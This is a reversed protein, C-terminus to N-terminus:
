KMCVFNLILASLGLAFHRPCRAGLGLVGTIFTLIVAMQILVLSDRSGGFFHLPVFCFLVVLIKNAARYTWHGQANFATNMVLGM